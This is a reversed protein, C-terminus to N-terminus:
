RRGTRLARCDREVPVSQACLIPDYRPGDGFGTWIQTITQVANPTLYPSTKFSERTIPNDVNTAELLYWDYFSQVVQEPTVAGTLADKQKPPDTSCEIGTILWRGNDPALVVQFRPSDLSAQVPVRAQGGAVEAPGVDVQSPASQACFFPDNAGPASSAAIKDIQAVFGPDLYESDRYAGDALPDGQDQLYSLYWDYFSSVTAEPAQGGAAPAAPEPTGPAFAPAPLTGTATVTVFGLTVAPDAADAAAPGSSMCGSALLLLGLLVCCAAFRRAEM